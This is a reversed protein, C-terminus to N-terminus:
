RDDYQGWLNRIRQHLKGPVEPSFELTVFGGGKQAGTVRGKRLSVSSVLGRFESVFRHAPKGKVVRVEGETVELIWVASSFKAFIRGIM